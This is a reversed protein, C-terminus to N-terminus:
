DTNAKFLPYNIFCKSFSFFFWCHFTIGFLMDILLGFWYGIHYQSHIALCCQGLEIVSINDNLTAFFPTMISHLPFLQTPVSGVWSTVRATKRGWSAFILKIMTPHSLISTSASYISIPFFVWTLSLSFSLYLALSSM